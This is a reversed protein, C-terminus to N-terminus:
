MYLGGNVSLVQGTIYDAHTSALFAVAYAIDCAQGTRHMPITQLLATDGKQLIDKTMDTEIYGPAIANVNINKAAVEKALSKSFGILGAKSAAYICQGANGMEGVISSINIIKGYNKKIMDRIVAKSCLFAGKLNINMQQEYDDEKFRLLLNDKTIGANNVLIDVTGIKEKITSVAKDVEEASSVDFQLMMNQPNYKKLEALTNAAEEQNHAYNGIVCAKHSALTIAIAKGIGRSAGTVLAVKGELNYM